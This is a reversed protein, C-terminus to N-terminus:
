IYDGELPLEEEYNVTASDPTPQSRESATSESM